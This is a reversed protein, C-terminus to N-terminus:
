NQRVGFAANEVTQLALSRVGEVWRSTTAPRTPAIITAATKALTKLSDELWTEAGYPATANRAANHHPCLLHPRLLYSPSLAHYPAMAVM